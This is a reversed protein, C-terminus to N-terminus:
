RNLYITEIPLYRLEEEVRTSHFLKISSIKVKINSIFITQKVDVWDKQFQINRGLTVHPLFSQKTQTLHIKEELQNDLNFHLQNLLSNTQSGLWLINKNKKQFRGLHNIMIEFSSISESAEVMAQKIDPITEEPMEGIFRLTLHFNLPDFLRGKTIMGSAQEQIQIFKDRTEKDFDIGIFLRM